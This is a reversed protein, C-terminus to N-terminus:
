IREDTVIHEIGSHETQLYDKMFTPFAKYQDLDEIPLWYMYERVGQTYGECKLEKSGRAKMLFYFTIEHCELNELTASKGCFFNEHIVALHDIEYPIGTEEFVERRVADEASEGIFVGGGVSYYYDDTANSAFLVMNDEAIIGAVRYRFWKNEKQLRCDYDM